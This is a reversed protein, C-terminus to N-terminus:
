SNEGDGSPSAGAAFEAVLRAFEHPYEEQPLHGCRRFVLLRATPMLEYLRQGHRLPIDPDGEGWILLTPQKIRHAEEEIRRARWRRLTLLAAHQTASARLPRYHAEVRQRDFLHENANVYMKKMRWRMLSASDILLPSVLDGMLPSAALRLLPQRKAEDNTVAGVLVLREVRDPEDLACTAAVAGGYSSGVLVARRLGLEDMLGTIMRAQADITYEGRRPKASFGFGVLDPAIVRFGAAALPLLVDSWVLNSACFGHILLVPPGMEPGVEQYHVRVGRVTKFRSHEAHQLNDRHEAWVVDRPRTWLKAAVAAGAVGAAAGAILYRKKMTLGFITKLNYCGDLRSEKRARVRGIREDARIM